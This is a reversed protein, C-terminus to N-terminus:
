VWEARMAQHRRSGTLLFVLICDHPVLLDRHIRLRKSAGTRCQCLIQGAFPHFEGYFVDHNVFFGSVLQEVQANAGCRCQNHVALHHDSEVLCTDIRQQVESRPLVSARCFLPTPPILPDNFKSMSYKIILIHGWKGIAQPNLPDQLADKKIKRKSRWYGPNDQRWLQVRKVNEPGSFYDQNGPKQLWRRQSAAKSAKRCQPKHCYKQREANRPDPIFLDKCNCCKKRKTGAM